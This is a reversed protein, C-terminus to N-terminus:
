PGSDIAIDHHAEMTDHSPPSSIIAHHYHGDRYKVGVDEGGEAAQISTDGM